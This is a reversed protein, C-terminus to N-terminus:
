QKCLGFHVNITQEEVMGLALDDVGPLLEEGDELQLRHVKCLALHRLVAQGQPVNGQSHWKGMAGCSGPDRWKQARIMVHLALSRQPPWCSINQKEEWKWFFCLDSHFLVSFTVMELGHETQLPLYKIKRQPSRFSFLVWMTALTTQKGASASRSEPSTEPPWPGPLPGASPPSTWGPWRCRFGGRGFASVHNNWQCSMITRLCECLKGRKNKYLMKM